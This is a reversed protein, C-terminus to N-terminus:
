KVQLKKTVVVNNTIVSMLYTGQVVNLDLVAKYNMGVVASQNYVERGTMDMVRINTISNDGDMEVVFSGNSPNPYVELGLSLEEEIGTGGCDSAPLFTVTVSDASVACIEGSADYSLGYFVWSGSLVPLSNASLVGGLDDDLDIPFETYGSVSIAGENGGGANAGPNMAFGFGGDGAESGDSVLSFVDGPCVDMPYGATSLVGAVCPGEPACTAPNAGCTVTPNGNDVALTTACDVQAPADGVSTGMENVVITYEGSQTATWAL